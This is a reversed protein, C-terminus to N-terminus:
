FLRVTGQSFDLINEEAEEFIFLKTVNGAFDLNWTFNTQQKAKPDTDLAQEKSLDTAM